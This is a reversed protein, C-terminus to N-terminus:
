AKRASRALWAANFAEGAAWYFSLTPRQNRLQITPYRMFLLQRDEVREIASWPIFLDPARFGRFIPWLSLFFGAEGITLSLCSRYSVPFTRSGLGGSVFSFRRGTPPRTARFSEALRVWGSLQALLVTVLLWLAAFALPFLVALLDLLLNM